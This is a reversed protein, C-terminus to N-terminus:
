ANLTGRLLKELRLRAIAAQETAAIRLESAPDNHLRRRAIALMEDGTKGTACVIFMYGFRSEYAANVEALQALTTEAAAHAGSQEQASWQPGRREGIRPHAAFAERWDEPSLSWWIREAADYLADRTSFPRASALQAAWRPSGSCRLLASEADSPPITNLEDLTM